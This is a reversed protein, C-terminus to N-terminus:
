AEDIYRVNETLARGTLGAEESTEGIEFSTEKAGVRERRHECGAFM